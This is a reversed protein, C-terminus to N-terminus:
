FLNIGLCEAYGCKAYRSEAYCHFGVRIMFAVWCLLLLHQTHKRQIGKHQTDNHCISQRWNWIQSKKRNGLGTKESSQVPNMSLTEKRALGDTWFIILGKEKKTVSQSFLSSRKESAHRYPATVNLMVVDANLVKQSVSCLHYKVYSVGLTFV